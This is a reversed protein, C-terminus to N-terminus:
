WKNMKMIMIIKMVNNNKMKMGNDDNEYKM